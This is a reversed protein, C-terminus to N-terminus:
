GAGACAPASAVAGYKPATDRAREVHDALVDERWSGAIMRFFMAMLPGFVLGFCYIFGLDQFFVVVFLLAMIGIQFGGMAFDGYGDRGSRLMHWAFYLGPLMAPAGFVGAMLIPTFVLLTLPGALWFRLLKGARPVYPPYATAPCTM